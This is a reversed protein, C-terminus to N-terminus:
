KFNMNLGKWGALSAFMWWTAKGKQRCSEYTTHSKENGKFHTHEIPVEINKKGNWYLYTSKEWDGDTENKFWCDLDAFDFLVRNHTSDDFVWKRIINNNVFRNYGKEGGYQAHGTMYVFTINPYKNEFKLITELYKKVKQPSYNNLQGCWAWMCLNIEPNQYLIKEVRNIGEIDSWFKDPGIYPHDLIVLKNESNPLIIRDIDVSFKNDMKEILELGVVPQEGHSTHAYYVKIKEKAYEIYKLPIIDIDTCKHDVILPKDIYLKKEILPMKACANILLFNIFILIAILIKNNKYLKMIEM